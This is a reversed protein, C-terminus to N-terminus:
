QTLAKLSADSIRSAFESWRSVYTNLFRTTGTQSGVYIIARAGTATADTVANGGHSSISRGSANWSHGTKSPASFLATSSTVPTGGDYISVATNSGSVELKATASSYWLEPFTAPAPITGNSVILTGSVAQMAALAAGTVTVNDGARTATAGATVILSTGFAGAELQFANLSGTVTVTCTGATPTFTVPTGNTATGTCGTATGNTLAASGSGNVWLTQASAALAGTTQTAPATSNLLQNTRAEEILLGNSDIALVNANFITYAFGSPSSPLLNTKPSARVISLCSALSCGYYQGTAFNMDINAAVGGARLVWGPVGSLLVVRRGSQADAFGAWLCLLIALLTRM